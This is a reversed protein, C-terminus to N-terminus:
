FDSPDSAIKFDAKCPGCIVSLAPKGWINAGCKSCSYKVRNSRDDDDGKPDREKRKKIQGMMEGWAISFGDAALAKSAVEFPGAEIIYHSMRQGTEKGGPEGSDSPHLGIEKMKDAWQRNHYSSRSAKGFHAQWLHIMEHALTSLVEEVPRELFHQPNMAIEDTHDEGNNQRFRSPAFHGYTRRSHRQLTVLCAPLTNSFLSSNLHDYASQFAQYTVETPTLGNSSTSSPVKM